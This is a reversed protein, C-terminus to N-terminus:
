WGGHQLLKVFGRKSPTDLNGMRNNGSIEALRFIHPLLKEQVTWNRAEHEFNNTTTPWAAILVRTVFGFIELRRSDAMRALVIDQVLRHVRVIMTETNLRVLSTKTLEARADIYQLEDMPYAELDRRMTAQVFVSDQIADPDLCAFIQILSKAASSLGDLAWSTAITHSWSGSGSTADSVPRELLSKDYFTLFEKLAMSKNYIYAAVQFIAIPLGGLRKVIASADDLNSSNVTTFSLRLLLPAASSNELQELVIVKNSRLYNGTRADRSTVLICGYSGVPWCDRLLSADDVNDFILLWTIDRNTKSSPNNNHDDGLNNAKPDSTARAFKPVSLWKMAKSRSVILNAEDSARGDKGIPEMLGLAAAIRAFSESLKTAGDAQVVFIADFQDRRRWAYEIATQTKGMGGLGSITCCSLDQNNSDRGPFFCDDIAQFVDDRGVFEPEPSFPEIM